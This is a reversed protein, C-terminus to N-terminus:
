VGSYVFYNQGIRKVHMNRNLMRAEKLQAESLINKRFVARLDGSEYNELWRLHDYSISVSGGGWIGNKIKSESITDYSDDTQMEFGSSIPFFPSITKVLDEFSPAYSDTYLWIILESYKQKELMADVSINFGLKGETKGTLAYYKDHGKANLKNKFATIGVSGGKRIGYPGHIIYCKPIEGFQEEFGKLISDTLDPRSIGAQDSGISYLKIATVKNNMKFFM